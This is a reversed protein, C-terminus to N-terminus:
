GNQITNGLGLQIDRRDDRRNGIIDVFMDSLVEDEHQVVVLQDFIPFQDVLEDVAEQLCSVFVNM